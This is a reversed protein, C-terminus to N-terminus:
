NRERRVEEEEGYGDGKESQEREVLVTEPRM